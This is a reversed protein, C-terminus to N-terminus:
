TQQTVIRRVGHESPLLGTFMSSHSPLTLPCHSYAREYLISDARLADLHPTSVKDYGYMPLRDSRLTDISILIVPTTNSPAAGGCRGCSLPFIAPLAAAVIRMPFTSHPPLAVAKRHAALAFFNGYEPRM